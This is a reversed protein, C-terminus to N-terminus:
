YCEYNFYTASGNAGVMRFSAAGAGSTQTLRVHGGSNLCDRQLQGLEAGTISMTGSPQEGGGFFYEWLLEFCSKRPETTAGGSVLEIECMSLTKM